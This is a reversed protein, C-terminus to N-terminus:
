FNYRAAANGSLYDPCVNRPEERVWRGPTYRYNGPGVPTGSEWPHSSSSAFLRTQGKGSVHDFGRKLYPTAPDLIEEKPALWRWQQGVAPDEGFQERFEGVTMPGNPLPGCDDHYPEARVRGEVIDSVRFVTWRTPIM